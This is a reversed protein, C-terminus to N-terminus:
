TKGLTMQRIMKAWAADGNEKKVSYMQEADKGSLYRMRDSEDNAATYITEAVMEPTSATETSMFSQVKENMTQMEADYDTVSDNKAMDISTTGFNTMVAGPEVIKVRIGFQELEHAISESFGELAFKTSHYLSLYPMAVLGGISTLNIILGDKNQKFHPLCSRIVSMAGFLNTEFERNIQDQSSAEFPGMLGYGANNLVVDIKGFDEIAKSVSKKISDEDTVDLQYVKINPNEALDKGKEPTRM